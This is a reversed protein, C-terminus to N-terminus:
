DSAAGEGEAVAEVAAPAGEAVVADEGEDKLEADTAEAAPEADKADTAPEADKAKAAPEADKAEAAPEAPKIEAAPEAAKPPPTRKNLSAAFALINDASRAQQPFEHLAGAADVGLITPFGKIQRGKAALRDLVRRHMAADVRVFQVGASAAAAKAAAENLAPMVHRSWGCWHAYVVVVAPSAGKELRAIVADAEDDSGVETVHPSSWSKLMEAPSPPAAPAPAPAAAPPHQAAVHPPSAPAPAAAPTAVGPKAARCREENAKAEEADREAKLLRERLKGADETMWKLKYSTLRDRLFMFWLTMALAVIVFTKLSMTSSAPAIAPTHTRAEGADCLAPRRRAEMVAAM